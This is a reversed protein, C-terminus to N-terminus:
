WFGMFLYKPLCHLGLHFTADHQMEDLDESNALVFNMKLSFFIKKKKSIIVQSGEIYAISRESMVTDCKIPFKM